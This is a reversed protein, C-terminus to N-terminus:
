SIIIDDTEDTRENERERRVPYFYCHPWCILQLIYM